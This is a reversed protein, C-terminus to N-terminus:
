SLFVQLADWTRSPIYQVEMPMFVYFLVGQLGYTVWDGLGFSCTADDAPTITANWYRECPLRDESDRVWIQSVIGCTHSGDTGACPDCLCVRPLACVTDVDDRCESLSVLCRRSEVLDGESGIHACRKARCACMPGASAVVTIMWAVITIYM